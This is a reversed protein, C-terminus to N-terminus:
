RAIGVAGRNEETAQKLQSQLEALRQRKEANVKQTADSEAKKEEIEARLGSLEQKRFDRNKTADTEAVEMAKLQHALRTQTELTMSLHSTAHDRRAQSNSVARDNRREQAIFERTAAALENKAQDVQGERQVIQKDLEEVKKGYGENLSAIAAILVVWGAMALLVLATLVKSATSM